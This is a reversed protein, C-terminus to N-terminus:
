APARPAEGSAPSESRAALGDEGVGFGRDVVDRQEVKVSKTLLM